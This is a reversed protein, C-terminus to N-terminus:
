HFILRHKGTNVFGNTWMGEAMGKCRV